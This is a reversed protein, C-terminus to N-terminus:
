RSSKGQDLGPIRLQLGRLSREALVESLQVHRKGREAHSAWPGQHKLWSELEAQAVELQRASLESLKRSEFRLKM